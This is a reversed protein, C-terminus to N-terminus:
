KISVFDFLLSTAGFDYSVCVSLVIAYLLQVFAATQLFIIESISAFLKNRHHSVPSASV